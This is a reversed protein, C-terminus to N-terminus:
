PELNKKRERWAWSKKKREREGGKKKLCFRVIYGPNQSVWYTSWIVISLFQMLTFMQTCAAMLSHDSMSCVYASCVFIHYCIYSLAWFNCTYSCIHICQCTVMCQYTMGIFMCMWALMHGHKFVAQMQIHMCASRYVSSPFVYIYTLWLVCKFM